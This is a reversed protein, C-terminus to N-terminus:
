NIDLEKIIQLLTKLHIMSSNFTTPTYFDVLRIDILGFGNTNIQEEDEIITNTDPNCKYYVVCRSLGLQKGEGCKEYAGFGGLPDKSVEEYNNPVFGGQVKVFFFAVFFLNLM